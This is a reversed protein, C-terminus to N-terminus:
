KFFRQEDEITSTPLFAKETEVLAKEATEAIHVLADLGCFFNALHSISKREEDSMSEYNEVITPMVSDKYEQLLVNFKVETAARDSM